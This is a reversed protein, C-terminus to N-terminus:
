NSLKEPEEDDEDNGTEMQNTQKEDEHIEEDTENSASTELQKQYYEKELKLIFEEVEDPVNADPDGISKIKSNSDYTDQASLVNSGEEYSMTGIFAIPLVLIALFIFFLIGNLGLEFIKKM